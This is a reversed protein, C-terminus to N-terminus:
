FNVVIVLSLINLYQGLIKLWSISRLLSFLANKCGHVKNWVKEFKFMKSQIYKKAPWVSYLTDIWESVRVHYSLLM